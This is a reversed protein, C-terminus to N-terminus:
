LGGLAWWQLYLHYNTNDEYFFLRDTWIVIIIIIIM